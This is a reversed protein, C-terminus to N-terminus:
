FDIRLSFYAAKMFDDIIDYLGGETGAYHEYGASLTVGDSPKYKVAPRVMLDRATFNYVTTLSPILRGYFLDVEARMGAAHYYEYLQNNYLRNFSEIQSATFAVPDFGPTSFLEMLEEMDPTTGIFPDYPAEYFDMVKKGSYEATVRLSGPMWDFGAVWEVQPFPIEENGEKEEAPNTYALTGRLVFPSVVTEFDFGASNIIYPVGKVAIAPELPNTYDASVLTLGPMLDPGHYWQLGADFGRMTFDGRFGYSYFGNGTNFGEPLEVQIGPPLPIPKIILISPNWFPAAVASLKLFPAPTFTLEGLLNGLEADEFDPSRLTYDLPSFRSLPTFIDTKGWKIIKQGASISMFRNYYMGWAERLTVSNVNEGFQQGLRIRVDAFGKFSLNDTATLTLAADGFVANVDHEYDGTSLYLGGRVFGGPTFTKEQPFLSLPVFLLLSFLGSRPNM